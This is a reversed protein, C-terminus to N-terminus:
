QAGARHLRDRGLSLGLPVMALAIAVLLWLVAEFGGSVDRVIGLIVPAVSSVLYGILLMFAAISAADAPNRGVDVPLTLALPFFAGIGIGLLAVSGFTLLSGPAEGPTLVIGLAGIVALVAATTMQSRRTGLRDALIPTALTTLLGVGNFAAILAAADGATWGREIYASALWTIAGYFLTSQSAFVFGLLWAAPRRWPLTPLAPRTRVGGDGPVLVLWAVLSVVSAGAIVAFAPRWGGLGDALPVVIAAAISGGIIMGAVYAGTASAPNARARARVVMSLIPGVLALGAGLGITTALVTLSDPMLARAFGFAGVLVVCAAVALRPGISAALVPGFPALLGMALVPITGLLGAVGHSMGLDAAIVGVMPGIVLIQTRLPLGVLVLAAALRRFGIDRGTGAGPGTGAGRGTDARGVRTGATM